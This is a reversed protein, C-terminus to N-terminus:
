LHHIAAQAGVFLLAWLMGPLGVMLTCKIWGPYPKDKEARRAPVPTSRSIASM